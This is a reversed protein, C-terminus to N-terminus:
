LLRALAVIAAVANRTQSEAAATATAHLIIHRLHQQVEREPTLADRAALEHRWLLVPPRRQRRPSKRERAGISADCADRAHAASGWPPATRTRPPEPRRARPAFHTHM